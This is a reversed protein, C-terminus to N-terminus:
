AMPYDGRKGKHQLGSRVQIQWGGGIVIVDRSM